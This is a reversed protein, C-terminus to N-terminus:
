WGLVEIILQDPSTFTANAFEAPVGSTGDDEIVVITNASRDWRYQLEVDAAGNELVVLSDLSNPCGLKNNDLPIGGTPYEGAATTLQFRRRVKGSETLEKGLETYTVDAAVLDAM